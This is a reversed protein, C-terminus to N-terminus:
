AHVHSNITRFDLKGTMRFIVMRAASWRTYGRAKRRAAQFLRNLAELFGKTQRSTMWVVIGYFHRRNMKVVAKM